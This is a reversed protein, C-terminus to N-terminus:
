LFLPATRDTGIAMAHVGASSHGASIISALEDSNEYTLYGITDFLGLADIAKHDNNLARNMTLIVRKARSLAYGVEFTVNFNLKTIDMVVLEAANLEALVEDAIFRGPIDLHRWTRVDHTATKLSICTRKITAGLGPPQSPYGVFTRPGRTM